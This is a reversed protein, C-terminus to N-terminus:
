VSCITPPPLHTYSVARRNYALIEGLAKPNSFSRQTLSGPTLFGRVFSLPLKDLNFLMRLAYLPAHINAIREDPLTDPIGIHIDLGLPGTIEERLFAGISRGDPDTHQLLGSEYFGLTVAHYGHHAGPAWAPEQDAIARTVAKPDALTELTLPRDVASLGAQHSLLQRVTVDQKGGGAFEPWYEAVPTDYDFYGRSHALAMVLASIGKTTSFVPVLTDQTWADRSRKDRVGAWLDVVMEDGMWASCAAGLEGRERFNEEFAERVPEFGQAVTGFVDNSSGM